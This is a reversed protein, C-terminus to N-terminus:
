AAPLPRLVDLDVRGDVGDVHAESDVQWILWDRVPRRLIKRIWQPRDDDLPGLDYQKPFGGSLYLVMSQGTAAEVQDIFVGVERRVWAESPRRSCNGTIELDIVPPLSEPDRPVTALFNAAQEAGTKCLTFFHYAGRDLGADGAGKWNTAFQKDVHDGGETAKLYAFDIDDGAVAEWDVRGQHNSVDIGYREGPRLEPRHEPLWRFWAWAGVTAAVLVVGAVVFPWRRRARGPGAGAADPGSGREAGDEM